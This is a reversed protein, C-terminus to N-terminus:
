LLYPGKIKASLVSEHFDLYKWKNRKQGSKKFKLVIRLSFFCLSFM